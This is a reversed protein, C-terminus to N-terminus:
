LYFRIGNLCTLKVWNKRCFFFFFLIGNLRHISVQRGVFNNHLNVKARVDQEKERSDIFKSAYKLGYEINDNCGGWEFGRSDYTGEAPQTNNCACNRLM